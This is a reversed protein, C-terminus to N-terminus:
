RLCNLRPKNAGNNVILRISQNMPRGEVKSLAGIGKKYRLM